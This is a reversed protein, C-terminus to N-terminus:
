YVSFISNDSNIIAQFLSNKGIICFIQLIEKLYLFRFELPSILKIKGKLSLEYLCRLNIAFCLIDISGDPKHFSYEWACFLSYLANQISPSDAMPTLFERLTLYQQDTFQYIIHDNPASSPLVRNTKVFKNTYKRDIKGKQLIKLAQEFGSLEPYDTQSIQITDQLIRIDQGSLRLVM